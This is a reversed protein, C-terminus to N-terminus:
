SPLALPLVPRPLQLQLKERSSLVNAILSQLAKRRNRNHLFQGGVLRAAIAVPIGVGTSHTAAAAGWGLGSAITALASRTGFNSLAEELSVRGQRYARYNQVAAFAIAIAPLHVYDVGMSAQDAADTVQQTLAGLTQTSGDILNSILDPHIALAEYADHPVVVPIDSNDNIADRVYGVTESAKLQLEGAIQGNAGHIYIDADPNNPAAALEATYGSPLHGDNLWGMYNIEFLKGKVGSILGRLAAPNDAFKQVNEVFSPENPYQLHFAEQVDTPIQAESIKGDIIDGVSVGGILAADIYDENSVPRRLLDRPSKLDSGYAFAEASWRERYEARM